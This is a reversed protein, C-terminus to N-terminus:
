KCCLCKRYLFINRLHSINKVNENISKETFNKKETFSKKIYCKKKM